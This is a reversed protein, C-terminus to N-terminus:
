KLRWRPEQAKPRPKKRFKLGTLELGRVQCWNFECKFKRWSDVFSAFLAPKLRWIRCLTGTWNEDDLHQLVGALEREDMLILDLDNLVHGGM